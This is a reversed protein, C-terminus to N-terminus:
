RASVALDEMFAGDPASLRAFFGYALTDDAVTLRLRNEGKKLTVPVTFEDRVAITRAKPGFVVAGNLEATLRHDFGLRLVAPRVDPSTIVCEATVTCHDPAGLIADLNVYRDFFQGQYVVDKAPVAAPPPAVMAIRWTKLYQQEFRVAELEHAVVKQQHPCLTAAWTKAVAIYGLPDHKKEVYLTFLNQMAQSVPNDYSAPDSRDSSAACGACALPLLARIRPLRAEAGAMKREELLVSAQRNLIALARVACAKAPPTQCAPSGLDVVPFRGFSVSGRLSPNEALWQEEEAGPKMAAGREYLALKKWTAASFLATNSLANWADPAPSTGASMAPPEAECLTLTPSNPYRAQLEPLLRQWQELCAKRRSEGARCQRDMKFTLVQLREMGTSFRPRLRDSEALQQLAPDWEGLDQWARAIHRLTDPRDAGLAMANEFHTIALRRLNKRVADEGNGGGKGALSELSSPISSRLEQGVAEGAANLYATAAALQFARDEARAPGALVFEIAARDYRNHRLYNLALDAHADRRAALDAAAPPSVRGTPIPLYLLRFYSRGGRTEGGVLGGLFKWYRDGGERSQAAYFPMLEHESFWSRTRRTFLRYLFRQEVFGNADQEYFNTVGGLGRIRTEGNEWEGNWFPWLVSLKQVDREASKEASRHYFPFLWSDRSASDAGDAHDRTSYVPLFTFPISLESSRHTDPAERNRWTEYYFPLLLSWIECRGYSNEYSFLPFFRRLTYEGGGGWALISLLYDQRAYTPQGDRETADFNGLLLPIWTETSVVPGSRWTDRWWFPLFGNDQRDAQRQNWAFPYFAATRRPGTACDTHNVFPKAELEHLALLRPSHAVHYGAGDQTECDWGLPFLYWLNAYHGHQSEWGTVPFVRGGSRTEGNTMSFLPFLADYRVYNERVNETRNLIPGLLNRTDYADKKFFHAGVPVWFEASEAVKGNHTKASAWWFPFLLHGSDVSADETSSWDWWLPALVHWAAATNTATVPNTFREHSQWYPLLWLTDDDRACCSWKHASTSHYFFPFLFDRSRTNLDSPGQSQFRTWGNLLLIGGSNSSSRTSGDEYTGTTLWFLPLLGSHLNDRTNGTSDSWDHWYWFLPWLAHLRETDDWHNHQLLALNLSRSDANWGYYFAPFLAFHDTGSWLCPFLWADHGDGTRLGSLPWFLYFQNPYQGPYNQPFSLLQNAAYAPTSERVYLPWFVETRTENTVPDSAHYFFPWVKIDTAASEGARAAAVLFLCFAMFLFRLVLRRLPQLSM